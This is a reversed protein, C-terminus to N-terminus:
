PYTLKVRSEVATGRRFIVSFASALTGCAKGVIVLASYQAAYALAMKYKDPNTLMM